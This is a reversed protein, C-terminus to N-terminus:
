VTKEPKWIASGVVLILVSSLAALINSPLGLFGTYHSSLYFESLLGVAFATLIATEATRASIRKSLAGLILPFFIVASYLLGALYMIDILNDFLRSIFMGALAVLLTVVRSVGLMHKESQNKAFYPLYIDNVFLSSAGILMSDATSMTAAFIGGLVLGVLGPPLITKVLLAFGMNPDELGPLLVHICLGLVGVILGYLVYVAGTFKFAFSATSGDKAAFVRQLYNQNTGYVFLALLMWSFPTWFGLEGFSLFGEPLKAAIASWGGGQMLSAPILVIMALMIIFFQLIDTNVVAILGGGVTYFLVVVVSILYAINQPLGLIAHIATASVIFQASLMTSLGAIHLIAAYTRIRPRYRTGLFEPVTTINLNRLKKTVLFGLLLFAPAAVLNWLSGSIGVVYIFATAGVISSGGIDSAALSLAAQLRNLERNALIFEQSSHVKKTSLVGIVAIAVFILLLGFIDLWNM